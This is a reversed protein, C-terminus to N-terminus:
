VHPHNINGQVEVTSYMYMRDSLQYETVDSQNQSAIVEPIEKINIEM